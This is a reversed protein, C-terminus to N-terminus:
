SDVLGPVAVLKGDPFRDLLWAAQRHFYAPLRLQEIAAHRQEDLEKVLKRAGRADFVM